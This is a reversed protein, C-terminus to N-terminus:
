SVTGNEECVPSPTSVSLFIIALAASYAFCHTFGYLKVHQDSPNKNQTQWDCIFAFLMSFYRIKRSFTSKFDAEVSLEITYIM